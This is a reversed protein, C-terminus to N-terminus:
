FILMVSSGVVLQCQVYLRKKASKKPKRKNKGIAM